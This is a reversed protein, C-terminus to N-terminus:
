SECKEIAVKRSTNCSNVLYAFARELRLVAAVVVAACFRGSNALSALPSYDKINASTSQREGMGHLQHVHLAIFHLQWWGQRASAM